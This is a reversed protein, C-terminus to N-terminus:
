SALKANTGVKSLYLEIADAVVEAIPRDEEVARHKLLRYLDLPLRFTSKTTPILPLQKAM